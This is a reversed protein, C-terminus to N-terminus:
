PASPTDDDDDFESRQPPLGKLVEEERAIFFYVVTLLLMVAFIIWAWRTPAASRIPVFGTDVQVQVQNFQHYLAVLGALIDLGLMVLLNKQHKAQIKFSM